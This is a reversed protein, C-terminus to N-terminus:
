SAVQAAAADSTFLAGVTPVFLLAMALSAALTALLTVPLYVMFEGILGPWFLLPLFAALTTATSATIPWAMRKAAETYARAPTYGHSLNVQAAEVVVIAGDVLMGVAMILSFLVVINMSFDLMAIVFIGTLFSGPISLGVLGASRVGLAGLVVVMVLVVATAVNNVLDNLMIRVQESNDQTISIEVSEPLRNKAEAVLAEGICITESQFIDAYFEIRPPYIDITTQSGIEFVNISGAVNVATKLKRMRGTVFAANHYAIGDKM